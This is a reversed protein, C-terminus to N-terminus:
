EPAPSVRSGPIEFNIEEIEVSQSEPDPGEPGDEFSAPRHKQM